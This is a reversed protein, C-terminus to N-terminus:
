AAMLVCRRLLGFSAGAAKANLLKLRGAGRGM